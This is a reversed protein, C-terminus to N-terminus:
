NKTNNYIFNLSVESEKQKQEADRAKGEANATAAEAAKREKEVKRLSAEQSIKAKRLPLPDEGKLQALENAAKNRAVVSAGSDKSKNELTSCQEHYSDEQRKLEDVAARSEAEAKRVAEEAKKQEELAVRAVETAKRSEELAKKRQKIVTPPIEVYRRKHKFLKKKNKQNDKYKKTHVNFLM